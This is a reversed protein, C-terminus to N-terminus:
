FVSNNGRESLVYPNRWQEVDPLSQVLYARNLAQAIAPAWGPTCVLQQMGEIWQALEGVHSYGKRDMKLGTVSVFDDYDQQSGLFISAAPLGQAQWQKYAERPKWGTGTFIIAKGTPRGPIAPIDLWSGLRIQQWQTWHIGTVKGFRDMPHMNFRNDMDITYDIKDLDYDVIEGAWPEISKVWKQNQALSCLIDFDEQNLRGQQDPEAYQGKYYLNKAGLFGLGVRVHGGGLARVYALAQICELPTGSIKFTKDGYTAPNALPNNSVDPHNFNM